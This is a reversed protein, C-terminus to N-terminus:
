VTEGQPQQEQNSAEAAMKKKKQNLSMWARPLDGRKIEKLDTVHMFEKFRGVDSKTEALAKEILAIDGDDIPEQDRPDHQAGDLDTETRTLGLAAILSSRKAITDAAMAEQQGTMGSENAIPVPVSAVPDGVHGDIHSVVGHAKLHSRIVQAITDVDAFKYTYSIGKTKSTVTAASRMPIQPCEAQFAAMAGLWAQKAKFAHMAEAAKILGQLEDGTIGKEIAKELMFGFDVAQTGHRIPLAEAQTVLDTTMKQERYYAAPRPARQAMGPLWAAEPECRACAEHLGCM